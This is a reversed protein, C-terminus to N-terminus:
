VDVFGGSQLRPFNIYFVHNLTSIERIAISLNISKIFLVDDFLFIDPWFGVHYFFIRKGENVIRLNRQVAIQVSLQKLGLGQRM